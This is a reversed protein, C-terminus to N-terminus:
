LVHLVLKHLELAIQDMILRSIPFIKNQETMMLQDAPWQILIAINSMEELKCQLFAEM